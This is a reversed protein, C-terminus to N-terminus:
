PYEVVNETQPCTQAHWGSRRNKDQMPQVHFDPIHSQRVWTKDVRTKMQAPMPVYVLLCNAGQLIDPKRKNKTKPFLLYTDKLLLIRSGRDPMKPQLAKQGSAM